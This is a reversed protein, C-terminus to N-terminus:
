NGIRWNIRQDAFSRLPQNKADLAPRYKASTRLVYCAMADLIASGSTETTVCNAVVGKEDIMMRVGVIGTNHEYMAQMPYDGSSFLSTLPKLPAAPTVIRSLRDPTMTWLANLDAVCKTLEAGVGAMNALRIRINMGTAGIRFVGDTAAQRYQDPTLTIRSITSHSVRDPYDILTTKIRGGPGDVQVDRQVPDVSGGHRIVVIQAGGLVPAPMFGVVLKDKGALYSRAAICSSDGYDVQWPGASPLVNGSPATTSALAAIIMSFM